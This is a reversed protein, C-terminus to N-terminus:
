GSVESDNSPYELPDKGMHVYIYKYLLFLSM